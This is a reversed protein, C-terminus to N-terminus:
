VFFYMINCKRCLNGIVKETTDEPAIKVEVEGIPENHITAVIYGCDWCHFPKSENTPRHSLDVTVYRRSIVKQDREATGHTPTNM